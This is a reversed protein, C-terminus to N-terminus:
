GLVASGFAPNNCCDNRIERNEQNQRPNTSETASITSENILTAFIASEQLIAIKKSLIDNMQILVTLPFSNAMRSHKQTDSVYTDILRVFYGLGSM